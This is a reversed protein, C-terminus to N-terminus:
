CDPPRAVTPESCSIRRLHNQVVGESVAVGGKNRRGGPARRYKNVSMPSYYYTCGPQQKNFVPLEMNQGYDVVFTYTREAHGKDVTRRAKDVKEQYLKRQARSMRLHEAAEIVMVEREEVVKDLAWESRNLDVSRMLCALEDVVEPDNDKNDDKNYDDENGGHQMTHDGFFKQRHAFTSCINCIDDVPRSAM